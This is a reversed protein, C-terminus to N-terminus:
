FWGAGHGACGIYEFAVAHEAALGDEVLCEDRSDLGLRHCRCHCDNNWQHGSCGLGVMDDREQVMSRWWASKVNNKLEVGLPGYDWCASLGGYIESSQFIIGRRKCLSVIKEMDVKM